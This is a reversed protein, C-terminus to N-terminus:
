QCFSDSARGDRCTTRDTTSLIASTSYVSVSETDSASRRSFLRM